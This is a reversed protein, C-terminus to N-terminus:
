GERPQHPESQALALYADRLRRKTRSLRKRVTDPRIALITAIEATSFGHVVQLLVCAADDPEVSRLTM